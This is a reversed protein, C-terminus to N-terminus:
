RDPSDVNLFAAFVGDVFGARRVFGFESALASRVGRGEM